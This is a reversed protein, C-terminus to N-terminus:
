FSIFANGKLSGEPLFSSADDDEEEEYVLVKNKMHDCLYESSNLRQDNALDEENGALALMSCNFSAEDNQFIDEEIDNDIMMMSDEQLHECQKADPENLISESLYNATYFSLEDNEVRENISVERNVEEFVVKDTNQEREQMEEKEVGVEEDIESSISTVSVAFSVNLAKSGTAPTSLVHDTSVDFELSQDAVPSQSVVQEVAQQSVDESMFRDQIESAIGPESSKNRTAAVKINEACIQEDVSEESLSIPETYVGYELTDISSSMASQTRMISSSSLSMSREIESLSGEIQSHHDDFSCESALVIMSADPDGDEEDELEKSHIAQDSVLCEERQMEQIEDSLPIQRPAESLVSDEHSKARIIFVCDEKNQEEEVTDTHEVTHDYAMDDSPLQDSADESTNSTNAEFFPVGKTEV